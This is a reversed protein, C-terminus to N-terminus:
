IKHWRNECLVGINHKILPQSTRHYFMLLCSISVCVFMEFRVIHHSKALGKWVSMNVHVNLGNVKFTMLCSLHLSQSWVVFGAWPLCRQFNCDLQPRKFFTKMSHLCTTKVSFVQLPFLEPALSGAAHENVYQCDLCFYELPPVKDQTRVFFLALLLYCTYFTSFRTTDTTAHPHIDKVVLPLLSNISSNFAHSTRLQILRQM